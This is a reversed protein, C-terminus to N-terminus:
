VIRWIDGSDEGELKWRLGIGVSGERVKSKAIRAIFWDNEGIDVSQSGGISVAWSRQGRRLQIDIADFGRFEAEDVLGRLQDRSSKVLDCYPTFNRCICKLYILAVLRCAQLQYDLLTMDARPKWVHLMLLRHEFMSRIRSLTEPDSRTTTGNQSDLKLTFHRIDEFIIAM